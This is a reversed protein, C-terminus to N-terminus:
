WGYVQAVLFRPTLGSREGERIECGTLRWTELRLM